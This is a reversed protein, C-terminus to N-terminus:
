DAHGRRLGAQWAPSGDLVETVAVADDIFAMGGLPRGLRM